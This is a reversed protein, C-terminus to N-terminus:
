SKLSLDNLKDKLSETLAIIKENQKYLIDNSIVVMKSVKYDQFDDDTMCRGAFEFMLTLIQLDQQSHLIECAIDQLKEINQMKVKEVM